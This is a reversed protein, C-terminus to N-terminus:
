ASDRAAPFHHVKFAIYENGVAYIEVMEPDNIAQYNYLTINIAQYNYLTINEYSLMHFLARCSFFLFFFGVYLKDKSYRVILLWLFRFFLMFDQM